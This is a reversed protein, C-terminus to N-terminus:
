TSAFPDHRLIFAASVRNEEVASAPDRQFHSHPIYTGHPSVRVAHLAPFLNNDEVFHLHEADEGIMIIIGNEGAEEDANTWKGSRNAVWLASHETSQHKRIRPFIVTLLSRDRHENLAGADYNFLNFFSQSFPLSGVFPEHGLGDPLFLNAPQECQQTLANRLDIPLDGERTLLSFVEIAINFLRRFVQRRVRCYEAATGDHPPFRFQPMSEALDLAAKLDSLIDQADIEICAFGKLRLSSIVRVASDDPREQIQSWRIPAQNM